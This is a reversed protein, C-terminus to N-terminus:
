KRAGKEGDVFEKFEIFALTSVMDQSEDPLLGLASMARDAIELREEESGASDIEKLLSRYVKEMDSEKKLKAVAAIVAKAQSGYIEALENIETITPKPLRVNLQHKTM